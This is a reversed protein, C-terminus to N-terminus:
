VMAGTHCEGRVLWKHWAAGQVAASLCCAAEKFDTAQRREEREKKKGM